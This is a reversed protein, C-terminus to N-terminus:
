APVAEAVAAGALDAYEARYASVMTELDFVSEARTRAGRGHAEVLSRDRVYALMAEALAQPDGRSVLSGTAGEVVTELNGDVATAIVPLGKAMAELIANSIGETESPVVLVDMGDLLLAVDSREGLFRVSERLGLRAAQEELTGRLPGDGALFFAVDDGCAARARAAAELFLAHGKAARNMGAAMFLKLPGSRSYASRPVSARTDIGNLLVRLKEEPIGERRRTEDAVARCVCFVRTAGRRSLLAELARIRGSRFVGMDRRSTVVRSRGALRAAVLGFVGATNLYTHVIDPRERRLHRTLGLFAPLFHRDKVSSMRFFRLPVGAPMQALVHPSAPGLCLVELEYGPSTRLAALLRVLHVQAGAVRLDDIIYAIHM